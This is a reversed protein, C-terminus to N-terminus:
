HPIIKGGAVADLEAESLEDKLKYKEMAESLFVELDKKDFVYGQEHALDVLAQINEERSVKTLEEVQQRLNEDEKVPLCSFLGFCILM